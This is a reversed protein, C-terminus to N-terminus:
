FRTPAQAAPDIVHKAYSTIPILVGLIPLGRPGKPIPNGDADRQPLYSLVTYIVLTLVTIILLWFLLGYNHLFSLNVLEPISLSAYHFNASLEM